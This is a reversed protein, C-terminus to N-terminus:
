FHWFCCIELHELHERKYRGEQTVLRTQWSNKSIIFEKRRWFCFYTKCSKECVWTGKEVGLFRGFAMISYLVIFLTNKHSMLLFYCQFVFCLRLYSKQKKKVVRIVRHNYMWKLCKRSELDVNQCDFWSIVCGFTGFIFIHMMSWQFNVNILQKNRM